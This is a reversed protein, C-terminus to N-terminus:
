PIYWDGYNQCDYAYMPLLYDRLQHQSWQSFNATPPGCALSLDRPFVVSLRCAFVRFCPVLFRVPTRLLVLFRAARFIQCVAHSSTTLKTMSAPTGAAHVAQLLYRAVHLWRGRQRPKVFTWAKTWSSGVAAMGFASSSDAVSALATGDLSATIQNGKVTV